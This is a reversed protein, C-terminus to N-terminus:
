TMVNKAEMKQSMVDKVGIQEIQEIQEILYQNNHNIIIDMVAM